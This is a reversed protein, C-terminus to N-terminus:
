ADKVPSLEGQSFLASERNSPGLIAAHRLLREQKEYSFFPSEKGGFSLAAVVPLMETFNFNIFSVLCDACAGM